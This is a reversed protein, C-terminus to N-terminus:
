QRFGGAHFILPDAPRHDLALVRGLLMVHDGGDLRQEVRCQFCATYDRLLPLDDIGQDLDLGEFKDRIDQAFYMAVDEQGAHLVHVAYADATNFADFPGIDRQVSWLVLPPELSVTTFSNVTMAVPSGDSARATVVAVGTAYAGLADRLRNADIATNM